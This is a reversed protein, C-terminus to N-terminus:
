AFALEIFNIAAKEASEETGWGQMLRVNYEKVQYLFVAQRDCWICVMSKKGLLLAARRSEIAAEMDGMSEAGCDKCVTYPLLGQIEEIREERHRIEWEINEIREMHDAVLGKLWESASMERAM